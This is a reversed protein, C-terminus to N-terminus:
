INIWREKPLATAPFSVQLSCPSKESESELSSLCKMTCSRTEDRAQEVQPGQHGAGNEDKYIGSNKETPSAQEILRM